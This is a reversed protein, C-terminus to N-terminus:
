LNKSHEKGMRLFAINLLIIVIYSILSLMPISIFGFLEIYKTTCSVGNSCTKIVEPIIGEYILNQYLAFISGMIALPLIYYPVSVDKRWLGVFLVFVMPYTFIRQWWCLDCPPFGLVNSFYLSGATSVVAILWAMYLLLYRQKM